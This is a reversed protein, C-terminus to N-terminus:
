LQGLFGDSTYKSVATATPTERQNAIAALPYRTKKKRKAEGVIQFSGRPSDSTFSSLDFYNIQRSTSSISILELDHDITRSSISSSRPPFLTTTECRIFIPFQPYRYFRRGAKEREGAISKDAHNYEAISQQRPSEISSGMFCAKRGDACRERYRASANM